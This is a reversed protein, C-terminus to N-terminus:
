KIVVKVFKRKGVQLISDKKLIVNEDVVKEQDIKVAGQVIMRRAENKSSVMGTSTMINIINRDEQGKVSFEKIDEPLNHEKFVKNFEENATKAEDRSYFREILIEALFEKAKKPHMKKINELNESTLLEYYRFMLEDSISMVKGFIEKPEENIGIYNGYSKSMKREGDIGELLPVTMVVQPEQGYDKQLERGVLLNFKQDNGGIEVDAKLHVSDYGQILPYLFEIISIPTNSKFRKHFDDRELMRAVTYRSALQLLGEVGLANLWESNFVVDTKNKDLIKFVQKTYTEANQMIEDRTMPKRLVSRGSPDGIAATFDGIIFIVKHGAEQFQRLKQLPVTHGLHIDAATPDAGFKIRLIKKTELKKKLDEAQLIEVTGRKITEFFEIFNTM